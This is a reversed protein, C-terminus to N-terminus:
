GRKLVLGPGKESQLVQDKVIIKGNVVTTEPWGTVTIGEYPNWDAPTHLDSSKITVVKKHNFVVIDANMGVAIVGRKGTRMIRAPNHSMLKPIIQVPLKRQNVAGHYMLPLSTEVGMLGNPVQDFPLNGGGKQEKTFACHDTGITDVIGRSLAKWIYEIDKNSRLPPSLLYLYGEKEKFKDASLFLYHPCTETFIKISHKERAREIAKIGRKCGVHVIYLNSSAISALYSLRTISEEESYDPRSLAHYEPEIKENDKFEAILGEIISANEAHFMPLGNNKRIAEMMKLLEGDDLMLGRARYATFMKFTPFGRDIIEKIESETTKGDTIGGHLGVNCFLNKEISELRKDVSAALKEGKVQTSFDIVTTVGGHVAALTGSSFDDISTTKKMPLKFHVHPDIIGPFV